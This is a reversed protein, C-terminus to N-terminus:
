HNLVCLDLTKEESDKIMGETFENVTQAFVGVDQAGIVGFFDSPDSIGDAERLGPESFQRPVAFAGDARPFVFALVAAGNGHLGVESEAKEIM